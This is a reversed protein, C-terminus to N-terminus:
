GFFGYRRYGGFGGYPYGGYGGYGGFGRGFGGYGGFGRGFGGFGRYFHNAADTKVNSTPIVCCRGFMEGAMKCMSGIPCPEM